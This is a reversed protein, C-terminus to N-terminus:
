PNPEEILDALEDLATHMADLWGPAYEAVRVTDGRQLRLVGTM